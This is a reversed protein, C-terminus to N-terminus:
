VLPNATCMWRVWPGCAMAQQVKVPSKTKVTTTKAKVPAVAVPAAVSLHSAQCTIPKKPQCVNGAANPTIAFLAVVASLAIVKSVRM